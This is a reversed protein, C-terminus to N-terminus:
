FRWGAGVMFQNRKADLGLHINTGDFNGNGYNTRVYELKGYFNPSFSVEGGIGLHVGGSSKSDDFDGIAVPPILPPNVTVFGDADDFNAKLKSHSYGGKLYVMAKTGIAYGVRAGIYLDRGVELCATDANFATTCFDSSSFGIGVYGGLIVDGGVRADYGAEAGLGFGNESNSGTSTLVPNTISFEGNLKTSDYGARLEIRGGELGAAQAPAAIAIAAGSALLTLVIKKM